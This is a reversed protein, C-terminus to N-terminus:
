FVYLTLEAGHRNWGREHIGPSVCVTCLEFWVKCVGSSVSFCIRAPPLHTFAYWLIVFAAGFGALPGAIGIDFHQQKSSIRDKIRIVAGMTGFLYYFPPLPIYYPLTTRVRYYVATFYHGFEHVTLIFLFSISYPLGSAFDAWSFGEMDVTKGTAWEAGALTTTIFTVLFLSVHLLTSKTKPSM